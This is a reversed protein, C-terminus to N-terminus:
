KLECKFGPIGEGDEDAEDCWEEADKKKMEKTDSVAFNSDDATCECTYEKKCSSLSVVAVMAAVFFMKTKM